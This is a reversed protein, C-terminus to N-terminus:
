LFADLHLTYNRSGGSKNELIYDGGSFYVNTMGATTATASFKTAPDMYEVTTSNKLLFLAGAHDQDSIVWLLGEIASQAGKLYTTLNLTADNAVARANRMARFPWSAATAAKVSGMVVPGNQTQMVPAVVNQGPDYMSLANLSLNTIREPEDNAVQRPNDLSYTYTDEGYFNTGLNGDAFLRLRINHANVSGVPVIINKKTGTESTIETYGWMWINKGAVINVNAGTGGTVNGESDLWDIVLVNCKDILLGNRVNGSLLLSAIKNSNVVGSGDGVKCGHYCSNAWIRGGRFYLTQKGSAPALWFGISDTGEFNSVVINDAACHQDGIRIGNSGAVNNGRVQFGILNVREFAVDLCTGSGDYTFAPTRAFPIGSEMGMLTLDARLTPGDSLRYAGTSGLKVTVGGTIAASGSAIAKNLPALNDTGVSTDTYVGDAKCGFWEAIVARVSASAFTVASTVSFVQIAPAEFPGTITTPSAIHCISRATIPAGGAQLSQANAAVLAATMDTTGPVANNGYREIYGPLYAYNVPMVGAAVEAPTRIRSDDHQHTLVLNTIERHRRRFQENNLETVPLKPLTM